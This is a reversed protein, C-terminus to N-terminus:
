SRGRQPLLGAGLICGTSFCLGPAGLGAFVAWCSRRIIWPRRTSSITAARNPHASLLRGAPFEATGPLGHQVSARRFIPVIAGDSQDFATAGPQYARINGGILGFQAIGSGAARRSALLLVARLHSCLGTRRRAALLGLLTGKRRRGPPDSRLEPRRRQQLEGAVVRQEQGLRACPHFGGLRDAEAELEPCLVHRQRSVESRLRYVGQASRFSQLPQGPELCLAPLQPQKRCITCVWPIVRHGGFREGAFASNIGQVSSAITSLNSNLNVLGNSITDPLCGLTGSPDTTCYQKQARMRNDSEHETAAILDITTGSTPEWRVRHRPFFVTGGMSSTATPVNTVFGDRKMWDGALRVGLQGDIIPVNVMGKVENAGYNGVSGELDAHFADLVPKATIINVTGGTAGRGYLTSQPGRLVEIRDLDYFTAEALPPHPWSFMTWISPLAPNPM